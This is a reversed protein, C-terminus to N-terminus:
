AVAARTRYRVLTVIIIYYHRLLYTNRISGCMFGFRTIFFFFIYDIYTPPPTCNSPFPPTIFWQRPLNFNFIIQLLQPKNYSSCNIVSYLSYYLYTQPHQTKDKIRVVNYTYFFFFIIFLILSFFFLVFLNYYNYLVSPSSLSSSSPLPRSARERTWKYKM